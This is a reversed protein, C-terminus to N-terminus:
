DLSKFFRNWRMSHDYQNRSSLLVFSATGVIHSEPVFGWYRSDISNDRSDGLVFYYDLKFTYHSAQKGDIFFLTDEQHILHGEYNLITEEYLSVNFANLEISDEKKPIYLPGYFDLNWAIPEATPFLAEDKKFRSTKSLEISVKPFGQKLEETKEDSLMAFLLGQVRAFQLPSDTSENVARALKDTVPKIQYKKLGNEPFQIPTNYVSVEKNEIQLTEGPLGICRKVYYAKQDIPHQLQPPYNFVLIDNREISDYGPLRWYPFQIVTSYANTKQTFPLTQKSFPFSIPTIPMRPGFRLKNVYVFDGNM